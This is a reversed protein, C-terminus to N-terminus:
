TVARGACGLLSASLAAGAERGVTPTVHTYLALTIQPSSHGLLESVVKVPVGDALPLSACAHRLDHFRVRPLRSLIVLVQFRKALADPHYPEGLENM